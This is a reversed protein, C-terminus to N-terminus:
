RKHNFYIDNNNLIIRINSQEVFMSITILVIKSQKSLENLHQPKIATKM